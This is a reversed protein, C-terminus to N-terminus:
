QLIDVKIVATMLDNSGSGLNFYKGIRYYNLIEQDTLNPNMSTTITDGNDFYVKVVRFSVSGIGFASKIDNKFLMFGGIALLGITLLKSNSKKKAM